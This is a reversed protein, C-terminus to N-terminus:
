SQNCNEKDRGRKYELVNDIRRRMAQWHTGKWYIRHCVPCEVFQEQTKFVYPPVHDKVEAKARAVLLQNCELCLTLPRFQNENIKLTEIVQPIQEALRDSNILIARVQGSTIIRRDMIGTDRTLLIRNEAQAIVVMDADNEGNFLRTDFGVMRLWRALKGVNNDAIFKLVEAM